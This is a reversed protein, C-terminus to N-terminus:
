EKAQRKIKEEMATQVDIGMKKALMLISYLADAFSDHVNDANRMVSSSLNSIDDNIRDLYHFLLEDDSKRGIRAEFREIGTAAQEQIVGVDM